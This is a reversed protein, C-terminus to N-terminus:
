ASLATHKEARNAGSGGLLATSGPKPSRGEEKSVGLNGVVGFFHREIAVKAAELAALAESKSMGERILVRADSCFNWPEDSVGVRVTDKFVELGLARTVQEPKMQQAIPAVRYGPNWGRFVRIREPMPLREFAALFEAMDTYSPNFEDKPGELSADGRFERWLAKADGGADECLRGIDESRYVLDLYGYGAEVALRVARTYESSGKSGYMASERAVTSKAMDCRM